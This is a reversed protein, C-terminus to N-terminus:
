PNQPGHGWARRLLYSVYWVSILCCVILSADVLVNGHDGAIWFSSASLSLTAMLFQCGRRDLLLTVLM